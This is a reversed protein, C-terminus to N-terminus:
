DLMPQLWHRTTTEVLYEETSQLVQGVAHRNGLLFAFSDEVQPPQPPQQWEAGLVMQSELEAM